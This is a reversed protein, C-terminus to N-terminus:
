MNVSANKHNFRCLEEKLAAKSVEKLKTRSRHFFNGNTIRSEISFKLTIRLQYGVNAV